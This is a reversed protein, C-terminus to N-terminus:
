RVKKLIWFLDIKKESIIVISKPFKSTSLDMPYYYTFAYLLLLIHYYIIIYNILIYKQKFTYVLTYITHIKNKFLIIHIKYDINVM